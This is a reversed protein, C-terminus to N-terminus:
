TFTGPIRYVSTATGAFLDRLQAESAHPLATVVTRVIEAFSTSLDCVPLNSAFMSREFGFVNVTERVVVENTAEDWRGDRLGLESVKVTVHDLAALKAMGTRWLALGEASRDLPLGAHNLVVPVDPHDAVVDAAESLHWFPVRLDWSFGHRALAVLGEQWAPDQLTGAQGAVSDRPGRSIIPKSRVGRFLPEEAHAALVADRDPQTFGVHGVIVSPSSTRAHLASLDVTEAVQEQRSREAEVHVDAVVDFGAVARRYDEVGFYRCMSRYDGLFFGEDYEEQLWPYNRGEALLFFHHHADVIPLDMDAPAFTPLTM